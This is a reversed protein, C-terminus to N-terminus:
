PATAATLAPAPAPAPAPAGLKYRSPGLPGTKGAFSGVDGWAGGFGYWPQAQADLLREWTRWQPCELCAIAEDHVTLVRRTGTRVVNEHSGFAWYSAHSGRASYVVPHTALPSGPVAVREVASWPLDRSGDHAHYRVSLPVYQDPDTGKALLVSIREWDGEHRLFRTVLRNGPPWSLGYFFWYTIRLAPREDALEAVQETYVPVGRLFRQPGVRRIAPKPRRAGDRLDLYWGEEPALGAPRDTTDFARTMADAPVPEGAEECREGEPVHRYANPGALRAPDFAGRLDEKEPVDSTHVGDEDGKGQVWDRCEAHSWALWSESLYTEAKMPWAPEDVDLHVLPAFATVPDDTVIAEEGGVTPDATAARLDQLLRGAQARGIKDTGTGEASALALAIVHERRLELVYDVARDALPANPDAASPLPAVYVRDGTQGIYFGAVEAPRGELLVAVPELARENKTDLVALTGGVVVIAVFTALAPATRGDSILTIAVVAVAMAALVVALFLIAPAEYDFAHVVVVVLVIAGIAALPLWFREPRPGSRLSALPLVLLAALLGLVIPEALERAGVVLLLREPLLAVSQDAPLGIERFGIWLIAGGAFTTLAGLGAVAGLLQLAVSVSPPISRQGNEPAVPRWALRDGHALM